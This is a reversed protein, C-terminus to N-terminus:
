GFSVPLVRLPVVSAVVILRDQAQLAKEDEVIGM